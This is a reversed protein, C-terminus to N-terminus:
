RPLHEAVDGAVLSWAAAARRFEDDTLASSWVDRAQDALSAALQPSPQAPALQFACSRHAPALPLLLPDGAFARPGQALFQPQCVPAPLFLRERHGAKSDAIQVPEKGVSPAVLQGVIVSSAVVGPDHRVM